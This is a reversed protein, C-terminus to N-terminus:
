FAPVQEISAASYSLHQQTTAGAALALALWRAIFLHALLTGFLGTPPHRRCREVVDQMDVM